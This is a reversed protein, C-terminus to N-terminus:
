QKYYKFKTDYVPQGYIIQFFQLYMTTPSEITIIADWDEVDPTSFSVVDGQVTYTGGNMFTAPNNCVNEITFTGNANFTYLSVSQFDENCFSIDHWYIGNDPDQAGVQKWSGMYGAPENVTLPTADDSACSVAAILIVFLFLLNRM